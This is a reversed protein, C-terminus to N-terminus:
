KGGDRKLKSSFSITAGEIGKFIPWVAEFGFGLHHIAANLDRDKNDPDAKDLFLWKDLNPFMDKGIKIGLPWWDKKWTSKSLKPLAKCAEAWGTHRPDQILGRKALVMYTLLKFACANAPIDLNGRIKRFRIITAAVQFIGELEGVIARLGRFPSHPLFWLASHQAATQLVKSERSLKWLELQAAAMMLFLRLLADHDDDRAREALARATGVLSVEYGSLRRDQTGGNKVVSKRDTLPFWDFAALEGIENLTQESFDAAGMQKAKEAVSDDAGPVKDNVPETYRRM